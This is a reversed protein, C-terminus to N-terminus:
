QVHCEHAKLTNLTRLFMHVDCVIELCESVSKVAKGPDLQNIHNKELHYPELEFFGSGKPPIDIEDPSLPHPFFIGM